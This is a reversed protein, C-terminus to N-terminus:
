SYSFFPWKDLPGFTKFVCEMLSPTFAGILEGCQAAGCVAQTVRTTKLGVLYTCNQPVPVLMDGCVSGGCQSPAYETITVTEGIAAAAQEFWGAYSGGAGTWRQFALAAQDSFSLSLQDRKCPDPGLVRQYDALLDPASRPDVQPLMAEMSAEVLALENALGIKGAATYTDVDGEPWAFGDPMVGLLERQVQAPTRM